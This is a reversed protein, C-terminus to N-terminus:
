AALEKLELNTLHLILCYTDDKIRGELFGRYPVGGDHFILPQMGKKGTGALVMADKEHLQKAMDYLFDYTLGNVHRLQYKRLFVYMRVVDRKPFFKGTWLVPIDANINSRTKDYMHREKESGDPNRVIEILDVGYLIQSRQNIYLKRTNELIMGAREFDVEPDNDLLEKGLSDLDDYQNELSPLDHELTTKLIKVNKPYSGDPLVYVISSQREGSEFSVAADRKKENALKITRM